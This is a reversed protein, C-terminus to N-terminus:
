LCSLYFYFFRRVLFLINICVSQAVSITFLLQFLGTVTLRVRKATQVANVKAASKMIPNEVVCTYTGGDSSKLDAIYLTHQKSVSIRGDEVLTVGDKKWTYIPKPFQNISISPGIEIYSSGANKSRYQLQSVVM